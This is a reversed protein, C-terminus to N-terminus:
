KGLQSTSHKKMQKSVKRQKNTNRKRSNELATTRVGQEICWFWESPETDTLRPHPGLLPLELIHWTISISSTQPGSKLIVLSPFVGPGHVERLPELLSFLFVEKPPTILFVALSQLFVLTNSPLPSLLTESPLYPSLSPLAALTSLLSCVLRIAQSAWSPPPSFCLQLPLAHPHSRCPRPSWRPLRLSQLKPPLQKTERFHFLFHNFQIKKM